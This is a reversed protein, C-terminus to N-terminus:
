QKAEVEQAKSYLYFVIYSGNFFRLLDWPDFFSRVILYKLRADYIRLLARARDSSCVSHM